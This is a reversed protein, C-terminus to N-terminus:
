TFRLMCVFVWWFWLLIKWWWAKELGCPGFLCIYPLQGTLIKAGPDSDSRSSNQVNRFSSWVKGCMKMAVIRRFMSDYDLSVFELFNDCSIDYVVAVDWCINETQSNNWISTVFFTRALLYRQVEVFIRSRHNQVNVHTFLLWLCHSCRLMYKWDSQQEM